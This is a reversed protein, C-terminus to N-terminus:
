HLMKHTAATSIKTIHPKTFRTCTDVDSLIFLHVVVLLFLENAM